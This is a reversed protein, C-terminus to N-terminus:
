VMSTAVAEASALVALVLATGIRIMREGIKAFRASGQAAEEDTADVRTGM